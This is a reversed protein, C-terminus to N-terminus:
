KKGEPKRTFSHIAGPPPGEVEGRLWAQFEDRFAERELSRELRWEVEQSLSRTSKEAARRLFFGPSHHDRGAGAASSTEVMTSTRAASASALNRSRVVPIVTM